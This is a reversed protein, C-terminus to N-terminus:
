NNATEVLDFMGCVWYWEGNDEQIKYRCLFYNVDEITLIKGKYEEIMKNWLICIKYGKDDMYRGEILGDKLKVKDGVKFKMKM